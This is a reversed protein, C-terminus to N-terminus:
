PNDGLKEKQTKNNKHKETINKFKKGLYKSSEKSYVELRKKAYFLFGLPIVLLLIVTSVSWVLTNDSSILKAPIPSVYFLVLVLTLLFDIVLRKEKESRVSGWM